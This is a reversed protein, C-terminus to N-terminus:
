MIIADKSFNAILLKPKVRSKINSRGYQYAVGGAIVTTIPFKEAISHILEEGVGYKM